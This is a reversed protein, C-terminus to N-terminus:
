IRRKKEKSLFVVALKLGSDVYRQFNEAGIEEVLPYGNGLLWTKADKLNDAGSLVLPEPEFDRFLKISPVVGGVQAKALEKDFCEAAPFDGFTKDEDVNQIFTKYSEDDKSEFFGVIAKKNGKL